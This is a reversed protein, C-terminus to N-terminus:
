IPIFFLVLLINKKLATVIECMIDLRTVFAALLHRQHQVRLTYRWRNCLIGKPRYSTRQLWDNCDLDCYIWFTCRECFMPAFSYQLDYVRYLTLPFPGNCDRWSTANEVYLMKWVFEELEDLTPFYHGKLPNWM